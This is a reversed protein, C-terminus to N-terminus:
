KIVGTNSSFLSKLKEKAPYAAIFDKDSFGYKELEIIKSYIEIIFQNYIDSIQNTLIKYSWDFLKFKKDGVYRTGHFHFVELRALNISNMNWPGGFLDRDTNEIVKDVLISKFNEIYKQDGFYGNSAVASCRELVSNKWYELLPEHHFKKFCLFQVCYKGHISELNRKTKEFFHPTLIVKDFNIELLKKINLPDKQFKTDCDIYNVETEYVDLIHSICFPTLTWIYEVVTRNKKAKLLEKNELISINIPVVDHGLNTLVNYTRDDLAVVYLKKHVGYRRMSELLVLLQPLYFYNLFTIYNM